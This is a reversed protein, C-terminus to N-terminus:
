QRFGPFCFRCAFDLLILDIESLSVQRAEKLSQACRVSFGNAELAQTLSYEIFSDDEILLIQLM